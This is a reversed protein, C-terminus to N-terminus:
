APRLHHPRPPRGPQPHVHPVHPVTPRELGRESQVDVAHDHGLRRPDSRPPVSMSSLLDRELEGACATGYLEEGLVDVRSRGLPREYWPERRDPITFTTRVLKSPPEHKPRPTQAADADEN